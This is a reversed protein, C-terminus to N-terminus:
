QITEFAPPAGEEFTGRIGLYGNGLSFLSERAANEKGDPTTETVSWPEVSLSAASRESRRWRGRDMVVVSTLRQSRRTACKPCTIYCGCMGAAQSRRRATLVLPTVDDAMRSIRLTAVLGSTVENAPPRGAGSSNGSSAM